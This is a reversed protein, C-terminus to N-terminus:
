QTITIYAGPKGRSIRVPPARTLQARDKLQVNGWQSRGKAPAKNLWALCNVGDSEEKKNTPTREPARIVVIFKM